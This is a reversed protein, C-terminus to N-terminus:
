LAELDKRVRNFTEESFIASTDFLEISNIKMLDEGYIYKELQEVADTFNDAYILGYDTTIDRDDIIMYEVSYLCVYSKM